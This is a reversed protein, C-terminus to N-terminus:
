LLAGQDVTLIPSEAIADRRAILSGTVIVEEIEPTDQAFTPMSVAMGAAGASGGIIALRVAKALSSHRYM